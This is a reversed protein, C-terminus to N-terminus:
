EGNYPIESTDCRWFLLPKVYLWADAYGCDKSLIDSLNKKGDIKFFKMIKATIPECVRHYAQANHRKNLQSHLVTSNTHVEQMDGFMFSDIIPVGLMRLTYQMDTIQETTTRAANFESGYTAM